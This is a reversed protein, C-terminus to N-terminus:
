YAKPWNVATLPVKRLVVPNPGEIGARYRQNAAASGDDDDEDVLRRLRCGSIRTKCGSRCQRVGPADTQRRLHLRMM